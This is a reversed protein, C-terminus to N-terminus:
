RGVIGFQVELPTGDASVAIEFSDDSTRQYGEPIQLSIRYKGPALNELRFSGDDGTTASRVEQTASPNTLAVTLKAVRADGTDYTSNRNRDEFVFGSIRGPGRAAPESAPAAPKVPAAASEQPQPAATEGSGAGGCATIAMIISVLGIRSITSIRM